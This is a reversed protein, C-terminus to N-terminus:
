GGTRGVEELLIKCCQEVMDNIEMELAQVLLLNKVKEGTPQGNEIDGGEFLDSHAEVYAPYIIQEWYRPPDRWISGEPDSQVEMLPCNSTGLAPKTICGVFINLFVV